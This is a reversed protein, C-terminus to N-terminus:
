FYRRAHQVNGAAILADMDKAAQKLDFPNMKDLLERHHVPISDVGNLAGVISGAMCAVTDTDDGANVGMYITQMTDGGCAAIMGFVAPIAENSPLGTGIIDEIERMAKEFDNRNRLGIEIAVEMKRAVSPSAVPRAFPLTREFGEEAGYLGARLVDSVCAGDVMAASAAAAIAAAASLAVTNNHTVMGIVVANDVAADLDGPTLLGIPGMKMGAGNSAKSNICLNTDYKSVPAEEGKLRAITVRTTPGACKAYQPYSAWDLLAEEVINQNIEGGHNIIAKLTMYAMSFDDTVEGAKSGAAYCDMPPTLIETVRGGFTEKILELSRTETAAGMADGLASAYLGGLLKQQRDM